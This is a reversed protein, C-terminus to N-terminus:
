AAASTATTASSSRATEKACLSNQREQAREQLELQLICPLAASMDERSCLPGFTCERGYSECLVHAHVPATCVDLMDVVVYRSCCFDYLSDHATTGHHQAQPWAEEAGWRLGVGVADRKMYDLGDEIALGAGRVRRGGGEWGTAEM